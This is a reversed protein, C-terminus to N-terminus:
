GRIELVDGISIKDYVYNSSFEFVHKANFYVKSFRWPKLTIIEIVKFCKDVFVVDISFSMFFSHVSFCYPIMLSEDTRIEKKPILGLLRRLFTDAIFLNQSVILNKTTNYLIKM